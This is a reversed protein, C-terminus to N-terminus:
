ASEIIAIAICASLLALCLTTHLRRFLRADNATHFETRWHLPLLLLARTELDQLMRQGLRRRERAIIAAPVKSRLRANMRVADAALTAAVILLTVSYETM